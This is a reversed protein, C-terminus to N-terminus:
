RGSEEAVLDLIAGTVSHAVGTATNRGVAGRMVEIPVRYQMAISVLVATDHAIHAVESGIRPGDIFIEGVQGEAFYGITIQYMSGAHRLAHTVCCRRAPLRRREAM